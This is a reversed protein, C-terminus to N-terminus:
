VGESERGTGVLEEDARLLHRPQVEGRDRVL